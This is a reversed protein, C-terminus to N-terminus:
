YSAHRVGGDVAMGSLVSCIQRPCSTLNNASAVSKLGVRTSAVEQKEEKRKPRLKWELEYRTSASGASSALHAAERVTAHRILTDVLQLLRHSVFNADLRLQNNPDQPNVASLPSAVSPREAKPWVCAAMSVM